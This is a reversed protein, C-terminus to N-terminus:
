NKFNDLFEDNLARLKEVAQKAAAQNKMKIKLEFYIPEQTSNPPCFVVKDADYTNKM